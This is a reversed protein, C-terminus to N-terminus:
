DEQTSTGASEAARAAALNCDPCGFVAEKHYRCQHELKLWTTGKNGTEDTIYHICVRKREPRTGFGLVYVFGEAGSGRNYQDVFQHPEFYNVTRLHDCDGEDWTLVFAVWQRIVEDPWGAASPYSHSGNGSEGNKSYRVGTLKGM